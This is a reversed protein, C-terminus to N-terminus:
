RKGFKRFSKRLDDVAKEARRLGQDLDGDPVITAGCGACQFETKARLSGVSRVNEQGCKPCPVGVEADDFM